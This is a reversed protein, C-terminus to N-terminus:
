PHAPGDIRNDFLSYYNEKEDRIAAGFRAACDSNLGCTRLVTEIESVSLKMRELEDIIQLLTGVKLCRLEEMSRHRHDHRSEEAFEMAIEEL